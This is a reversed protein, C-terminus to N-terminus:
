DGARTWGAGPNFSTIAGAERVTDPGLDQEFVGGEHNIMFTKIGTSGYQAPSAIIAFGGIMRGDVVYDMAGGSAAPGQRDLIRYVYGHYPRPTDGTQQRSYGGASAAAALPGLPSAAEGAVAPWYLGDRQGPTSFFRRAYASLAGSRGATRAYDRQADAMVRLTEIADLENRGIRRNSVEQAGAAADFRWAGGRRVVPIPLPWGDAGLQLTARNPAPRQIENKTAYAAAVSARAARDAVPDGSRVLRRGASGVIRLLAREDDARIAELLAAFGEEPSQFARPQVQRRESGRADVPAPALIPATTAILAAIFSQRLIKIM